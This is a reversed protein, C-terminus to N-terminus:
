EPVDWVVAGEIEKVVKESKAFVYLHPIEQVYAIVDVLGFAQTDFESRSRCGDIRNALDLLPAPRSCYLLYYNVPNIINNLLADWMFTIDDRGIEFLRSYIKPGFSFHRDVEYTRALDIHITACPFREMFSKDILGAVVDLHTEDQTDWPIDNTLLFLYPYDRRITALARILLAESAM